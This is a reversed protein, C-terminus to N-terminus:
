LLSLGPSNRLSVRISNPRLHLKEIRSTVSNENRLMGPQPKTSKLFAIRLQRALYMDETREEIMKQIAFLLSQITLSDM